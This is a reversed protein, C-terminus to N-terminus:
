DRTMVLSCHAGAIYGIGHALAVEADAVQRPSGAYAQTLQRYAEIVTFIGFMGPHTFSLGGGQTNM